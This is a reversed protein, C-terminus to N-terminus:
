EHFTCRVIQFVAAGYGDHTTDDTVDIEVPQPCPHPRRGSRAGPACIADSAAVSGGVERM